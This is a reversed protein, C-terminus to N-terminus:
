IFYNNGLIIVIINGNSLLTQPTLSYYLKEDRLVLQDKFERLDPLDRLDSKELLDKHDLQGKSV